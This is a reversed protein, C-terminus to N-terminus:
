DEMHGGKRFFITHVGLCRHKKNPSFQWFEGFYRPRGGTLKSKLPLIQSKEGLFTM